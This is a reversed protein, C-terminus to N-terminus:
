WRPKGTSGSSQMLDGASSDRTTSGWAPLCPPSFMPCSTATTIKGSMVQTSTIVGAVKREDLLIDNVWKIGPKLKDHSVTRVAEVVAVAPLMTLALGDRAELDLPQFGACLHLNGPEAQWARGRQGHFNRGQLALCVVPGPFRIGTGLAQHLIDFQSSSAVGIVFARSWFNKAGPDLGDGLWLSPRSSLGSWLTRDAQGLTDISVERWVSDPALLEHSSEPCDTLILMSM